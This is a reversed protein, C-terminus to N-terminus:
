ATHSASFLSNFLATSFRAAQAEVAVSPSRTATPISPVHITVHVAGEAVISIKLKGDDLNM